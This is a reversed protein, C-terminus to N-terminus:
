SYHVDEAVSEKKCKGGKFKYLKDLVCILIRMNKHKEHTSTQSLGLQILLLVLPM